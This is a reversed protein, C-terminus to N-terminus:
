RLKIYQVNKWAEKTILFYETVSNKNRGDVQRTMKYMEKKNFYNKLKNFNQSPFSGLIPVTTHLVCFHGIGFDSRSNKPIHIVM